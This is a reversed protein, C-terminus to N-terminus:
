SVEGAAAVHKGHFQRCWDVLQWALESTAHGSESEAKALIEKVCTIIIALSTGRAQEADVYRCVADRLESRASIATETKDSLTEQLESLLIRYESNKKDNM